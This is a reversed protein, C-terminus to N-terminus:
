LPSPPPSSLVYFGRLACVHLCRVQQSLDYAALVAIAAGLSHGTVLLGGSTDLSSLAATLQPILATYQEPSVPVLRGARVDWTTM